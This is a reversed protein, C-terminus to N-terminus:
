SAVAGGFRNPYTDYISLESDPGAFQIKNEILLQRKKRRQQASLIESQIM